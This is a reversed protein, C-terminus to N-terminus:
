SQGPRGNNNSRQSWEHRLGKFLAGSGQLSALAGEKLWGAANRMPSLFAAGHRRLAALDLDPAAELVRNLKGENLGFLHEQSVACLKPRVIEMFRKQAPYNGQPFECRLIHFRKDAFLRAVAEADDDRIVSAAYELIGANGQFQGYFRDLYAAQAEPGLAEALAQDADIVTYHYRDNHNFIYEHYFLTEFFSWNLTPSRYLRDVMDLPSGYENCIDRLISLEYFWCFHELFWKDNHTKLLFDHNKVVDLFLFAARRRLNIDSYAVFPDSFYDEFLGTMHTENVWMSESDLILCQRPEIFLIAYWKKLSQFSFKGYKDLLVGPSTKIGFHDLIDEFILTTVNLGDTSGIVADFAKKEDRNVIFYLPFATDEVYHKFSKLYKPIYPFHGAFTPTVVCRDVSM